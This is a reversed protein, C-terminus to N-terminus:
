LWFLFNWTFFVMVTFIYHPQPNPHCTKPSVWPHSDEIFPKQVAKLSLLGSASKTSSEAIAIRNEYLNLCFHDQKQRQPYVFFLCRKQPDLFLTLLPRFPKFIDLYTVHCFFFIWFFPPELPTQYFAVSKGSKKQM